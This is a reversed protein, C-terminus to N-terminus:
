SFAPPLGARWDDRAIMHDRRTMRFRSGTRYALRQFVWISEGHGSRNSRKDPL